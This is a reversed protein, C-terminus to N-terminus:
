CVCISWPFLLSPNALVVSSSGLLTQGPQTVAFKETNATVSDAPSFCYHRQKRVPSEFVETCHTKSSYKMSSGM